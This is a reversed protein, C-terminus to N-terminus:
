VSMHIYLRRMRALALSRSLAAAGHAGREVDAGEGDTRNLLVGVDHSRRPGGLRQQDIGALLGIAQPARDVLEADLDLRDQDRVTVEVVDAGDRREGARGPSRDVAGLDFAGDQGVDHAEHGELAEAGVLAVLGIVRERAALMQADGSEVDVHQERRAM